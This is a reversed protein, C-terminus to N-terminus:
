RAIKIKNPAKAMMPHPSSSSKPPNNQTKPLPPQFFLPNQFNKITKTLRPLLSGANEKKKHKYRM